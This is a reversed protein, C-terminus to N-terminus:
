PALLGAILKRRRSLICALTAGTIQFRFFRGRELDPVSLKSKHRSALYKFTLIIPRGAIKLILAGSV